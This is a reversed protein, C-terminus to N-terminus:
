DVLLSSEYVLKSPVAKGNVYAPTFDFDEDKFNKLDLNTLKKYGSAVVEADYKILKGNEDIYFILFVKHLGPYKRFEYSPTFGKVLFHLGYHNGGIKAPYIVRDGAKLSDIEYFILSDQLAFELKKTSYNYIQDLTDKERYFSWRGIRVDNQYLGTAMVRQGTLIKSVGNKVKKKSKLETSHEMFGGRIFRYHTHTSDSKQAFANSFAFFLLLSFLTKM